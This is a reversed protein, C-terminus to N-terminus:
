LYSEGEDGVLHANLNRALDSAVERVRSKADDFDPPANFSVTGRRSWRFVPLWANRQEDYLDADAGDGSIVINEGTVPNSATAGSTALRVGKIIDVAEMWEVIEISVRHGEKDQREIHISYAMVLEVAEVFRLQFWSPPLTDVDAKWGKGAM